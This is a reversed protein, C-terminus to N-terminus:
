DIKSKFQLKCKCDWPIHNWLRKAENRNAMINFVKINVDKTKILVCIKMSLDNVYNCGRNCRDLSIVFPHYKLEVPNLDILFPRIM